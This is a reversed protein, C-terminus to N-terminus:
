IFVAGCSASTVKESYRSLYGGSIRPKFAPLLALRSKIESDSLKVNLKCNLIDIEIIDGNNIAAIPGNLAAEPSVHGISAGRSAGSFRGDTILAVCKDLGMGALMSTPTLMERMGPGGKPGEYRIVVVDGPQIKGEMIAKTSADESDFVRAPGSHCLMEPAVASRKVVAGEPAINGFLIALGGKPSYATEESRIVDSDIVTAFQATEGITHGSVTKLNLNLHKSLQKMVAPIGGARDLDEIHYAGGPRLSTLCPTAESIANIASLSYEVGAEHAVAMLHLVSNTSGGLAMDVAFANHLSSSNIIDCPCLNEEFLKIIREGAQRALQLRRKDVAPITGNGPLGMGLAETLCNMTNATFM